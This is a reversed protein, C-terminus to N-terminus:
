SGYYKVEKGLQNALEIEQQMGESIYDGFVWVESCLLMVQLGLEIGRQRQEKVSDDLFQTFYLHPAFPIRGEDSAGKCYRKVDEVNQATTQFANDKYPSCIYIM